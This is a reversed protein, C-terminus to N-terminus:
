YQVKVDFRGDTVHLLEAAGILNMADFQFTGSIIKNTTDNLSINVSGTYQSSTIWENIPTLKRLVYYAYSGSESPYTQTDFNLPYVGPGNLNKIYIEFESETPSSSFNRANIIIGNGYYRAELTPATPVIGFGAPGWINGDVRAGFTNAGTQTAPPLDTLNKKCSATLLFLAVLTYIFNKM